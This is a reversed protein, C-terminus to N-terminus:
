LHEAHWTDERFCAWCWAGQLAHSDTGGGAANFVANMAEAHKIDVAFVIAKRVSTRGKISLGGTLAAPPTDPPLPYVLPM